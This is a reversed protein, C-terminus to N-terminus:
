LKEIIAQTLADQFDEQCRLFLTDVLGDVNVNSLLKESLKDTLTDGLQDLDLKQVIRHILKNTLTPAEGNPKPSADSTPKKSPM